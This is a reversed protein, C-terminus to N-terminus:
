AIRCCVGVVILDVVSVGLYELSSQVVVLMAKAGSLAVSGKSCKCEMCKVLKHHSCLVSVLM